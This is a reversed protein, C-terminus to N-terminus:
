ECTHSQRDADPTQPDYVADKTPGPCSQQSPQSMATVDYRPTCYKMANKASCGTEDTYIMKWFFRLWKCMHTGVNRVPTSYYKHATTEHHIKKKLNTQNVFIFIHQFHM